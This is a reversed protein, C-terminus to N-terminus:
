TDIAAPSFPHLSLHGARATFGLLPRGGLRYAPMGYSTGQEAGPVTREVVAAIARLAAADGEPLGQLYDEIVTMIGGSARTDWGGRVDPRTRRIRAAACARIRRVPGSATRPLTGARWRSGRSGRISNITARCRRCCSPSDAIVM